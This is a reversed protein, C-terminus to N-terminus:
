FLVPVLLAFGFLAPLAILGLLGLINGVLEMGSM